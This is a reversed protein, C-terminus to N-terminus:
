ITRRSTPSCGRGSPRCAPRSPSARAKSCSTCAVQRRAVPRPLRAQRRGHLRHVAPGLRQRPVDARGAARHRAGLLEARGAAGGRLHAAADLPPQLARGESQRHHGVHLVAVLRQERRVRALRLRRERRRDAGRLLAPEPDGGRGRRAHPRPRDDRRLGQDDERALRDGRDAAPLDPRLVPGPRRCPRRDLRGPGSAPAPQAHAARRGIRLGRLLAGHPPLREVGADRRPRRLRHRARRARQGDPAVARRARPLDHPAPRGRRPALGGRARRPPARRPDLLSSILLPQQM